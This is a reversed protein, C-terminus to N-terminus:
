TFVGNDLVKEEQLGKLLKGRVPEYLDKLVVQEKKWSKFLKEYTDLRTERLTKSRAVNSSEVTVIEAQLRAIEQFVNAIRKQIQQIPTNVQRWWGWSITNQAM